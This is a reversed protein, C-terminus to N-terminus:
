VQVMEDVGSNDYYNENIDNTDSHDSINEKYHFETNNTYMRNAKQGIKNRVKNDRDSLKINGFVQNGREKDRANGRM